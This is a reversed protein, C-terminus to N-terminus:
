FKVKPVAQAEKPVEFYREPQFGFWGAWLSTPLSKVGTNYAQVLENYRRRENSIRNETGALEDSLRTFQADAKLQPYAEAIALLRGLASSIENSAAMQAERTQAGLLAARAKAIGNFIESEHAAYGKTAEVLNPILDNRRQLQNEIQSWQGGIAEKQGVLTNYGCGSMQAGLLLAAVVLLRGNRGTGRLGNEMNM